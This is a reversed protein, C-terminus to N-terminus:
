LKEAKPRWDYAACTDVSNAVIMARRDKDWQTLARRLAENADCADVIFEAECPVLCYGHVRYATM